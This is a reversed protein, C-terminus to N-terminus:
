QLWSPMCNWPLRTGVAVARKAQSPTARDPPSAFRGAGSSTGPCCNPSAIIPHDALRGLV